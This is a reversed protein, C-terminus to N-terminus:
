SYNQQTFFIEIILLFIYMSSFLSPGGLLGGAGIGPDDRAKQLNQFVDTSDHLLQQRLLLYQEKKSEVSGHVQQLKSAVTIFIEHLRKVAQVLEAFLVSLYNMLCSEWPVMGEKKLASSETASQVVREVSDVEQSIFQLEEEIGNVVEIFYEDPAFHKDQMSPVIDQTQQAM